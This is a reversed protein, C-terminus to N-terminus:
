SSLTKMKSIPSTKAKVCSEARLAPRMGDPLTSTSPLPIPSIPLTTILSRLSNDSSPKTITTTLISKLVFLNSEPGSM